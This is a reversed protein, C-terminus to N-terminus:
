PRLIGDLRPDRVGRLYTWEERPVDPDDWTPRYHRPWPRSFDWTPTHPYPHVEYHGYLDTVTRGTATDTRKFLHVHYQCGKPPLESLATDTAAEPHQEPLRAFSGQDTPGNESRRKTAAFLQYHYGQDRLMEATADPAADYSGLYEAEDVAYSTYPLVADLVGAATRRLTHKTSM